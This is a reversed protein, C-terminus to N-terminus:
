YSETHNNHFRQFREGFSLALSEVASRRQRFVSGFEQRPLESLALRKWPVSTEELALSEVASRRQRFVSGFEQRPLESLALRKWPM